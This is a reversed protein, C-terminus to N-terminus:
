ARVESGLGALDAILDAVAHDIRYRRSVFNGAATRPRPRVVLPRWNLLPLDPEPQRNSPRETIHKM